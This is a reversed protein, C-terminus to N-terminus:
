ADGVSDEAAEDLAKASAAQDHGLEGRSVTHQAVLADASSVKM